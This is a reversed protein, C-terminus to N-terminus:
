GASAHQQHKPLSQDLLDWAQADGVFLDMKARFGSPDDLSSATIGIIGREANEAGTLRSGCNACFGRLNHGGALSPTAYHKLEGKTIKFAKFPVVVVPTYPGGSIRQCDRCHCNLMILPRSTCEYRVEGCVCGGTFPYKM